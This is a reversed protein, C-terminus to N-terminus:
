DPIHEKLYDIFYRSAIPMTKLNNFAIGITRKISPNLPIKVVDYSVRRLVLEPLISVGLGEEIMSLISYDDHICMKINPDLNQAHFAELPESLAGEELLLFPETILQKLTLVCEKALPHNKPLVALLEGDKLIIINLGSVAAPNIFGFDVQGSKIWEPITTYDGQHLIFQVNPYMTQFEKIMHPLWHCSISSITGIRINGSELGKIEKTKEIMARYSSATKLIYPYLEEGEPTLKVGTRSRLLLKLSLEDELSQVMQSIGSQTYGLLDASKTFSGVEVIKCLALYRNM